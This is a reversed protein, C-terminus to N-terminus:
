PVAVGAFLDTERGSATDVPGVMGKALRYYEWGWVLQGVDESLAFFPGDLTIQTAHAKMAAMKRDLFATGDIAAAVIHEASIDVVSGAAAVVAGLRGEYIVLRKAEAIIRAARVVADPDPASKSAYVPQYDLPEPVEDNFADLPVEIVVPQPRGNRLQTFARRLINPVEAGILLIVTLLATLLALPSICGLRNKGM